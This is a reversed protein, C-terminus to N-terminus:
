AALRKPSDLIERVKGVLDDSSLPKELFAHHGLVDHRADADDSDGSTYIVRTEPRDAALREALVHGNLGPMKTDTIMLPFPGKHDRAMRLAEWPDGSDLVTYGRTELLIRLLENTKAM